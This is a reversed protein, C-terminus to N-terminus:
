MWRRPTFGSLKILTPCSRLSVAVLLGSVTASTDHTSLACIVNPSVKSLTLQREDGSFDLLFSSFDKNKFIILRDRVWINEFIKTPQCIQWRGERARATWLHNHQQKQASNQTKTYWCALSQEHLSSIHLIIEFRHCFSSIKCANIM